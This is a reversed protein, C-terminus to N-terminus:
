GLTNTSPDDNVTGVKGTPDDGGYMKDIMEKRGVPDNVPLSYEDCWGAGEVWHTAGDPKPGRSDVQPKKNVPKKTTVQKSQEKSKEADKKAKEDAEKQAIQKEFEGSKIDYDRAMVEKDFADYIDQQTGKAEKMKQMAQDYFDDGYQKAREVCLEHFEKDTYRNSLMEDMLTPLKKFDEITLPKQPSEQTTVVITAETTLTTESTTKSKTKCSKKNGILCVAIIVVTVVIIASAVAIWFIKNHLLKKM